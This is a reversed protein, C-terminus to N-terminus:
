INDEHNLIKSEAFHIPHYKGFETLVEWADHHEKYMRNLVDGVKVYYPRRLGHYNVLPGIPKFHLGDYSLLRNLAPAMGSLWNKINFKISMRVIGAMLILAINPTSRRDTSSRERRESVAANEDVKRIGQSRREGKRRDFKSVVVFRSIEAVQQRPLAKINCLELDQQTYSEVPFPKEPQLPDFLILRATAIFDGSPRFRLLVHSSHSDYNDKELKDPYLSADFEPIRQEVCLVQYRIRYVIELLEDSDAEVIEFYKHFNNYLDSM